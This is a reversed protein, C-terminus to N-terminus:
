CATQKTPHQVVPEGCLRAAAVGCVWWIPITLLMAAYADVAYHWGLVVSGIAICILFAGAGAMALRSHHRAFLVALLATGVHVSPMASIGSGFGVGHRLLSSWLADQAMQSTLSWQADIM